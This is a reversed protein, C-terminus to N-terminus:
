AGGGSAGTGTEGGLASAGGGKAGIGGSGTGAGIAGVAGSPPGGMEGVHSGTDLAHGTRGFALEAGGRGSPRSTLRCSLQLHYPTGVHRIGSSGGDGPCTQGQILQQTSGM